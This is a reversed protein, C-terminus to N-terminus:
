FLGDLRSEPFAMIAGIIFRWNIGRKGDKVRCIQSVSIGMAIVLEPLSPYQPSTLNFVQTEIVM